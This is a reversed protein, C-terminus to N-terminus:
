VWYLVMVPGWFTVKDWFQFPDERHYLIAASKTINVSIYDNFHQNLLTNLFTSIKFQDRQFTSKFIAWDPGHPCVLYYQEILFCM